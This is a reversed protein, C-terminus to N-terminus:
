LSTALMSGSRTTGVLDQRYRITLVYSPLTTLNHSVTLRTYFVLLSGKLTWLLTGYTTWGALQIKSGLISLLLILLSTM